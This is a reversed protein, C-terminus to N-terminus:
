DDYGGGFVPAGQSLGPAAPAPAYGLAPAQYQPAVFPAAFAGAADGRGYYSPDGYNFSRPQSEAGSEEAGSNLSGPNVNGPPPAANQALAPVALLSLTLAAAAILTSSTKTM